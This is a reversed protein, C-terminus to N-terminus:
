AYALGKNLLELASLKVINPFKGILLFGTYTELAKKDILHKHIHNSKKIKDFNKLLLHVIKDFDNDSIICKNKEYYLFSHILYQSILKEINIKQIRKKRLKVVSVVTETSHKPKRKKRM